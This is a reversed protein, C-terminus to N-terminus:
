KSINVKRLFEASEEPSVSNISIGSALEFGGDFTLRPIIEIRWGYYEDILHYINLEKEDERDPPRLRFLMNFSANDTANGIRKLVAKLLEALEKTHSQSINCFPYKQSIPMIMVSFPESSAYPCFAFFNDSAQVFRSKVTIEEEVIDELLSRGHETFYRKCRLLEQEVSQPLFPLAMIQTHPHALTAGSFPGNNKFPLIYKLRTDNGLDSARAAIATLFLSFEHESFDYTSSPFRPTDIVVEHAGFGDMRDYLGFRIKKNEKEIELANYKNPVVRVQWGPTNPASRDYRISYIERPTKHESGYVFPSDISENEFGSYAFDSPRRKRKTAIIVCKGTIPCFRYHSM